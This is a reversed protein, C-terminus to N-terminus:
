FWSEFPLWIEFILFLFDTILNLFEFILFWFDTILDSILCWYDTILIRYDSATNKDCKANWIQDVRTAVLDFLYTVSCAIQWSSRRKSTTDTYVTTEAWPSEVMVRWVPCKGHTFISTPTALQPAHVRHVSIRACARTKASALSCWNVAPISFYLFLFTRLVLFRHASAMNREAFRAQANVWSHASEMWGAVQTSVRSHASLRSVVTYPIHDLYLM